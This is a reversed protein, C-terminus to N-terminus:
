KPSLSKTTTATTRKPCFYFDSPYNISQLFRPSESPTSDESKKGFGFPCKAAVGTLAIIALNKM